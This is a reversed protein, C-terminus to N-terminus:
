GPSISRFGFRQDHNGLLGHAASLRCLEADPPWGRSMWAGPCETLRPAAGSFLRHRCRKSIFAGPSESLRPAAGSIPRHRCRNSSFAGPAIRFGRLPALCYGPAHAGPIPRGRNFCAGSARCFWARCGPRGGWLASPVTQPARTERAMRCGPRSGWLLCGDIGKSGAGGQCRMWRTANRTASKACSSSSGSSRSRGRRPRRHSGVEAEQM